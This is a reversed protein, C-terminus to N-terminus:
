DCAPCGEFSGVYLVYAQIDSNWAWWERLVHTHRM